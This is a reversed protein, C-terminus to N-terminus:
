NGYGDNQTLQPAKNRETQPIPWLYFMDKWNKPRSLDRVRIRYVREGKEDLTYAYASYQAIDNLDYASGAAGYTPVMDPTVQDYGDPYKDTATPKALPFGYTEESNEVAGTRWRRMDFFHQGAEKMLEVKRERRVIQRMKEQNGARSPDATLVGPMGVRARVQDIADYVTQDIQNLEIKAEAYTLMVEALRMLIINYSALHVVEDDFHNYKKWLYGVGSQIYGYQAVSGTYDLNTVETVSGDESIAKTTPKYLEMLFRQKKGGSNGIITDGHTYVTMKLRPDRNIFPKKPDYGSGAEDIRKGNSMEYTDVLLQTPFRGSQAFMRSQEGYTIYHTKMVGQDSYMLSFLNESKAAPTMQGARTFLSAYNSALERGSELIVRNAADAAIRYYEQAQGQDTAGSEGYGYQCWSAAYLAIRAKLGLAVSKDVRGWDEAQWELHTAASELDELLFDVVERWPKRTANRREEETLPVSTFFPIDGWLFVLHQYHFARIVRIEALYQLAEEDLDKMFPQAGDLVTNARTVGKYFNAWHTEIVFNTKLDLSNIGMSNNDAREIGMPTYVDYLTCFPITNSEMYLTQYVGNAGAKIAGANNYFGSSLYESMPDKDLYDNCSSLGIMLPIIYLLNKIKKM